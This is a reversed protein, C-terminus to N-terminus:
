ISKTDMVFFFFFFSLELEEKVDCLMHARHILGNLVGLLVNKFHTNAKLINKNGVQQGIQHSWCEFILFRDKEM